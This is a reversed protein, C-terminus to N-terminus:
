DSTLDIVKSRKKPRNTLAQGGHGEEKIRERKIINARPLSGSPTITSESTATPVVPLMSATTTENNPLSQFLTAMRERFNRNESVEANLLRIQEHLEQITRELAQTRDTEANGPFSRQGLRTQEEDQDTQITRTSEKTSSIVPTTHDNTAAEHVENTEPEASIPEPSESIIGLLQLHMRSRYRFYFRLSQCNREIYEPYTYEEMELRPRAEVKGPVVAHSINKKKVM